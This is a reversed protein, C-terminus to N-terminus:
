GVRGTDDLGDACWREDVGAPERTCQAGDQVAGVDCIDVGHGRVVDGGDGESHHGGAGHEGREVDREGIRQGGPEQAAFREDTRGMCLVRQEHQRTEPGREDGRSPLGLKGSRQQVHDLQRVAVGLGREWDGRCASCVYGRCCGAGVRECDSEDLGVDGRQVTVHCEDECRRAIDSQFSLGYRQWRYGVRAFLRGTGVRVVGPRLSDHREAM